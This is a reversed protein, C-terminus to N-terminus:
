NFLPEVFVVLLNFFLCVSVSFLVCGCVCCVVGLVVLWATCVCSRVREPEKKADCM